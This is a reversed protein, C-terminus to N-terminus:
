FWPYIFLSWVMYDNCCYMRQKRQEQRRAKEKNSVPCQLTEVFELGVKNRKVPLASILAHSFVSSFYPMTIRGLLKPSSSKIDIVHPITKPSYNAYNDLQPLGFHSADLGPLYLLVVHQLSGRNIMTAFEPATTEALAYILFNRIDDVKLKDNMKDTNLNLSPVHVQWIFYADMIERKQWYSKSQCWWSTKTSSTKSAEKWSHCTCRGLVHDKEKTTNRIFSSYWLCWQETM